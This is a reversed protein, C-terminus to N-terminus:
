LSKIFALYFADTKGAGTPLERINGNFLDAATIIQRITQQGYLANLGARAGYRKYQSIMFYKVFDAGLGKRAGKGNIAEEFEKIDSLPLNAAIQTILDNITLNTLDTSNSIDKIQQELARIQQRLSEQTQKLDQQQEEIAKQQEGSSVIQQQKLTEQKQELGQQQQEIAKKQETFVGQLAKLSEALNFKSGIESGSIGLLRAVASQAAKM